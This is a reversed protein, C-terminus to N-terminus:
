SMKYSVSSKNKTLDIHLAAIGVTMSSAKKRRILTDLVDLSQERSTKDIKMSSLKKVLLLLHHLGLLDYLQTLPERKDDPFDSYTGFFTRNDTGLIEPTNYM